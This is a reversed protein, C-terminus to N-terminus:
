PPGPGQADPGVGRGQTGPVVRVARGLLPHQARHALSSGSCLKAALPSLVLCGNQLDLGPCLQPGEAVPTRCSGPWPFPLLQRGIRDSGQGM